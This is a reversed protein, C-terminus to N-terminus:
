YAHDIRRALGWACLAACLSVITLKDVRWFLLGVIAIFALVNIVKVTARMAVGIRALRPARGATGIRVFPFWSLALLYAILSYEWLRRSPDLDPLLRLSLLLLAFGNIVLLAIGARTSTRGFRRYVAQVTMLASLDGAVLGFSWGIVATVFTEAM